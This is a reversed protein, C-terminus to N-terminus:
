WECFFPLPVDTLFILRAPTRKYSLHWASLIWYGSTPSSCQRLTKVDLSTLPASSLLHKRPPKILSFAQSISFGLLATSGAEFNFKLYCVPFRSKPHHCDSFCRSSAQPDRSFTYSRIPSPFSKRPWQFPAFSQLTFAWFHQFHIKGLNILSVDNLLYGFRSLPVALPLAFGSPVQQSYWLPKISRSISSPCPAWALQTKGRIPNSGICPLIGWAPVYFTLTADLYM